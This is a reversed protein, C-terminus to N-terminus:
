DPGPGTATAGRTARGGGQEKSQYLAADAAALLSDATAGPRAMVYGISITVPV